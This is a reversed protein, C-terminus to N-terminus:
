TYVKLRTCLIGRADSKMLIDRRMMWIQETAYQVVYVREKSVYWQRTQWFSQCLIRTRSILKCFNIDSWQSYWGCYLNGHFLILIALASRHTHTDGNHIKVSNSSFDPQWNSKRMLWVDWSKDDKQKYGESSIRSTMSFPVVLVVVVVCSFVMLFSNM